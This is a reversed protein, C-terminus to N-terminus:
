ENGNIWKKTRNSCDTLSRVTNTYHEDNRGEDNYTSLNAESLGNEGTLTVLPLRQVITKNNTYEAARYNNTVNKNSTGSNNARTWAHCCLFQSFARRFQTSMFNYVVPSTASQLYTIVRTFTILNTYGEFGLRELSANDTFTIWLGVLRYPLLCVFFSLVVILLMFVVRKRGKITKECHSDEDGHTELFTVHWILKRAMLIYYFLLLALTLVFYLVLISVAYVRPPTSNHSLRCVLIPTGDKYNSSRHTAIFINPVSSLAAIVWIIVIVVVIPLGSLGKRSSMPHCIGIYRDHSILLITLISALTV